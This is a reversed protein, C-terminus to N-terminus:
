LSGCEGNDAHRQPQMVEVLSCCQEILGSV